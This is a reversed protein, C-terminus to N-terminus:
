FFDYILAFLAAVSMACVPYAMVDLSFLGTFFLTLWDLM